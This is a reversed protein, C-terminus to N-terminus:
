PETSNGILGLKQLKIRVEDHREPELQMMLFLAFPIEEPEIPERNRYQQFVTPKNQPLIGCLNQILEALQQPTADTTAAIKATEGVLYGTPIIIKEEPDIIAGASRVTFELFQQPTFSEVEM